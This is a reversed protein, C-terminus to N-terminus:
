KYPGVITVPTSIAREISWGVNLRSRLNNATMGVERALEAVTLTRGQYVVTNRTDNRPGARRASNRTVPKDLAEQVTWGANLRRNITGIPFGLKHEWEVVSLMVGNHELPKSQRGAPLPDKSFVVDLPFGQRYRYTCADVSLGLRLAHNTVTSKIGQYEVIKGRAGKPRTLADEVSMGGWIRKYVFSPDLGAEEALEVVLRGNHMLTNSRNRAQTKRDAWRCNSPEYNGKNDIRDISDNPDPRVGMDAVFNHFGHVPHLWRDCVTIGQAGYNAYDKWTEDYCRRKMGHWTNYLAQYESKTTKVITTSAIAESNNESIDM